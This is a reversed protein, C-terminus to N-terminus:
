AVALGDGRNAEAKKEPPMFLFREVSIGFAKAVSEVTDVTPTNRGGELACVVPQQTKMETALRSQSWQYSLRYARMQRCFIAHLESNVMSAIMGGIYFGQYTRDIM